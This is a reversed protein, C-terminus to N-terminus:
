AGNPNTTWTLHGAVPWEGPPVPGTGNADRVAEDTCCPGCIRISRDLVVRSGGPLDLPGTCRPCPNPNTM